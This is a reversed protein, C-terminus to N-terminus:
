RSLKKITYTVKLRSDSNRCKSNTDLVPRSLVPIKDDFFRTKEFLFIDLITWGIKQYKLLKVTYPGISSSRRWCSTLFVLFKLKLFTVSFPQWILGRSFIFITRFQVPFIGTKFFGTNSCWFDRKRLYFIDLITVYHRNCM